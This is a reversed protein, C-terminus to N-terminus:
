TERRSQPLPVNPKTLKAALTPIEEEFAAWASDLTHQGRVLVANNVGGRTDWPNGWWALVTIDCAPLYTLAGIKQQVPPLFMPGGDLVRDSPIRIRDPDRVMRKLPDRLHHGADGWCGFFYVESM